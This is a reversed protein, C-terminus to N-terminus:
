GAPVVLLSRGCCPMVPREAYPGNHRVRCLPGYGVIGSRAGEPRAATHVRGCGRRVRHQDYQTVKVGVRPIEYRQYSDVVGLGSEGALDHGCERSGEPFRDSHEDPIDTWAPSAGAAGPRKGLSRTPGGGRRKGVRPPTKGPDDDKSPPSSSDRSNRSLLHELRAPKGALVEDAEMLESLQGAMVAVQADRQAVLTVLEDRSM